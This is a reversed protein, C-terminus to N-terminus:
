KGREKKARNLYNFKICKCYDNSINFRESFSPSFLPCLIATLSTCSFWLELFFFPLLHKDIINCSCYQRLMMDEWFCIKSINGSFMYTKYRFRAIWWASLYSNIERLFNKGIPAAIASQFSSLSLSLSVQKHVHQPNILPLSFANPRPLQNDM